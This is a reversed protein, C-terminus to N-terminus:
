GKHKGQPGLLVQSRSVTRPDEVRKKDGRRLKSSPLAEPNTM